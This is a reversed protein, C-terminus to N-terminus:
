VNNEGEIMLFNRMAINVADTIANTTITAGTIAVVEDDKKASMIVTRLPMDVKKGIYRGLFWDETVYGGYDMTESHHLVALDSISRTNADIYILTKIEGVYGKTMIEQCILRDNGNYLEYIKVVEKDEIGNISKITYDSYAGSSIYHNQNLNIYYMGIIATLMLALGLMSIRRLM